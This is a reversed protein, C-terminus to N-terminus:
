GDRLPPLTLKREILDEIYETTAQEINGHYIPAQYWPHNQPYLHPRYNLQHPSIRSEALGKELRDFYQVARNTNQILDKKILDRYIDIRTKDTNQDVSNWSRHLIERWQKAQTRDAFLTSLHHQVQCIYNFHFPLELQEESRTSQIIFPYDRGVTADVFAEAETISIKPLTQNVAKAFPHSEEEKAEVVELSECDEESEEEYDAPCLEDLEEQSFGREKKQDLKETQQSGAEVDNYSTSSEIVETSEVEIAANYSAVETDVVPSRREATSNSDGTVANYSAVNTPDVVSSSERTTPNSEETVANYSAVNTTGVVSSSQETTLESNGTVANYSAVTTTTSERSAGEQQLQQSLLEKARRRTLIGGIQRPVPREVKNHPFSIKIKNNNTTKTKTKTHTINHNDKEKFAETTISRRRRM